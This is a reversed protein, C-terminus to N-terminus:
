KQLIVKEMWNFDEHQIRLYYIGSPKHLLTISGVLVGSWNALRKQQVQQGAQNYIQVELYPADPIGEIEMKFHGPTPNPFITVAPRDDNEEVGTLTMVVVTEAVECEYRDKIQTFYVGGALNEFIPSDQYTDGGDISYQYPAAGNLAELIIIGDGTDSNTEATASGSHALNCEVDICFNRVTQAGFDPNTSNVVVEGENNYVTFSGPNGSNIGDGFSDRFTFKYCKVPTCVETTYTTQPDAYPGGSAILEGSETELVWTTEDPQDDTKVEITMVDTNLYAFFTDEFNDDSTDGDEQNNPLETSVVISNEGDVLGILGIEVQESEEPAINGTWDISETPGDNVSYNIKVSTLPDSGGNKLVIRAIKQEECVASNLGEVALLTANNAARVTINEYLTDNFTAEEGAPNFTFFKINYTKEQTLAATTQFTYEESEGPLISGTFAETIQSEGELQYAVLFNSAPLVGYNSVEMKLETASNVSAQNGPELFRSVGVDSLDRDINLRAIRTSWGSGPHFEGTFWFDREGLPDVSMQFYDGFRNAATNFIGEGIITEDCTMQGLPDGAKRGTVWISPYIEDSAVGYALAINGDGDMAISPIIRNHDDPAHTGQQHIEWSSGNNRRLEYWRVGAQRDFNTGVNVPHCLVIAEYDPFRRYQVKNMITAELADIIQGNPQFVCEGFNPCVDSNFPITNLDIASSVSSQNPNDWNVSVEYMQLRDAGGGWGDDRLRFIMGPAGEAPGLPGDWDTPTAVQWATTSFLKPVGLRQVDATPEGNMMQEYNLVYVPINSDFGENTTVYIGDPWIAFKPYDPFNPAQFEYAYWSGTPDSTASILLMFSDDGQPAFESMMWRKNREDYLVIPDGQGTLGFEAWFENMTSPGFVPNGAKDFIWFLGGSAGNTMQIYYDRGIEGSPDPPYVNGNQLGARNLLIEVPEGNSKYSTEVLPDGADNAPLRNENVIELNEKTPFNPIEKRASKSNRNFTRELGPEMERLPRSTTILRAQSVEAGQMVPEQAQLQPEEIFFLSVLALLIYKVNM